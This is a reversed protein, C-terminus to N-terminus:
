PSGLPRPPSKFSPLAPGHQREWYDAKATWHDRDEASSASAAQQRYHAALIARPNM